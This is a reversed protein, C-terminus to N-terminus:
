CWYYTHKASEALGEEGESSGLFGHKVAEGFRRVEFSTDFCDGKGRYWSEHVVVM